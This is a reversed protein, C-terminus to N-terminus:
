SPFLGLFEVAICYHPKSHSFYCNLFFSLSLSLFTPRHFMCDLFGMLQSFRTVEPVRLGAWRVLEWCYPLVHTASLHAPPLLSSGWAVRMSSTPDGLLSSKLLSDDVLAHSLASQKYSVFIPNQSCPGGQPHGMGAGDKAEVQRCRAGFNSWRRSLENQVAPCEVRQTATIHCHSSGSVCFCLCTEM